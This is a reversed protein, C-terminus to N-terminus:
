VIWSNCYVTNMEFAKDSIVWQCVQLYNEQTSVKHQKTTGPKSNKYYKTTKNRIPQEKNNRTYEKHM